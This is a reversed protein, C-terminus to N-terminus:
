EGSKPAQAVLAMKTFGAANVTGMVQMVAGYNVGKDARLFLRRSTQNEGIAILRPVLDPLKVETEQLFIKGDSDVSIILPEQNGELTDAVTQPLDVPVGVTLLPATIMFVVLLVLMVDVFPTVNIESMPRHEGPRRRGGGSNLFPGAM